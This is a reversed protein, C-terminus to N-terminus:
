LALVLNEKQYAENINKTIQQRSITNSKPLKEVLNNLNLDTNRILDYIRKTYNTADITKNWDHLIYDDDNIRVNIGTDKNKKKAM